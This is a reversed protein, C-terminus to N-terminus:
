EDHPLRCLRHQTSFQYNFFHPPDLIKVIQKFAVRNVKKNKSSKHLLSVKMTESANNNLVPEM